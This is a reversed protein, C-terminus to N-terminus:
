KAEGRKLSYFMESLTFTKDQSLNGNADTNATCLEFVAESFNSFQSRYVYLKEEEVTLTEGPEITYTSLDYLYFGCTLRTRIVLTEETDNRIEFTLTDINELPETIEKGAIRVYPTFTLKDELTDGKSKLTVQASGNVFEVSGTDSVSFAIEESNLQMHKTESAAFLKYSDVVSGDKKILIELFADKDLKQRYVFKNGNGSDSLPALEMGNVSLEYGDALYISSVTEDGQQECAVLCKSESRLTKILRVVESRAKFLLSDNENYITGEYLSAYVDQLYIKSDITGFPLDYYSETNAIEEDLKCLLDYDDQGDRFALLRISPLFTDAGYKAGPYFMFGDGQTTPYRSSDEYPDCNAFPASDIGTWRFYSNYSWHLYGNIGYDKQMWRMVREGLLNDDLHNTPYPYLPEMCTYFWTEGGRDATEGAVQGLLKRTNPLNFQDIQACYTNVQSGLAQLQTRNATQLIPIGTVSAYFDQKYQPDYSDFYGEKELDAFIKDEVEYVDKVTSVAAAYYAPSVEDVYIPYIYAKDFLIKGPESRLALEYMYSYLDGKALKFWGQDATAIYRSVPIAYSTFNVNEWYRVVSEAMTKPENSGPVLFFDFKYDNLATEYYQRYLASSNNYEGNMFEFHTFGISTMGNAGTIDIDDVDVTVPVSIAVGDADLTFTGTYKGASTDSHATFDVTIGQNCGGKISNEGYKVALEMPLLMDPIYGSPYKDNNQDATKTEVNIYKQFYIKVNESPFIRGDSTKLEGATLTISKVDKSPTVILQASESEGKVMSVSLESGLNAYEGYSQMVKLTSYTSWIEIENKGSGKCATFGLVPVAGMLFALLRCILTRKKM